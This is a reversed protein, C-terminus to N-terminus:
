GRRELKAVADALENVDAQLQHNERQLEDLRSLLAAVEARTLPREMAARDRYGPTISWWNRAPRRTPDPKRM